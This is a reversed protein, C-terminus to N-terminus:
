DTLLFVHLVLRCVGVLVLGEFVGNVVQVLDPAGSPFIPELYFSGQLVVGPQFGDNQVNHVQVTISMAVASLM